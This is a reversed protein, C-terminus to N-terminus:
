AHRPVPVGRVRLIDPGEVQGHSDIAEHSAGTDFAVDAPSM